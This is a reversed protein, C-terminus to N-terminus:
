YKLKLMRFRKPVKGFIIIKEHMIQRYQVILTPCIIRPSFHNRKQKEHFGRFDVRELIESFFFFHIKKRFYKKETLVNKRFKKSHLSIQSGRKFFLQM